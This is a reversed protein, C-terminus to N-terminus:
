VGLLIPEGIETQMHRIVPLYEDILSIGAKAEYDYREVMAKIKDSSVLPNDAPYERPPEQKMAKRLNEIIVSEGEQAPMDVAIIAIEVGTKHEASAFANQKFVIRAKLEALTAALQKRTNTYPNRLTEANIVAVLHGGGRVLSLAKLVHRDGNSFPPNMVVLDYKMLTHFTLFDDHVIRIKEGKLIHRLEGSVEVADISVEKRRYEGQRHRIYKIIDGKGASPELITNIKDFNIGQLMEAILNEPTPYFEDADYIM